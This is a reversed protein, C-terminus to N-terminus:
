IARNSIRHRSLIQSLSVKTNDTSWKLTAIARLGRLRGNGSDRLTSVRYNGERFSAIVMGTVSQNLGSDTETVIDLTALAASSYIDLVDFTKPVEFDANLSVSVRPTVTTGMLDNYNGTYMTYAKLDTDVGVLYLKNNTYSGGRLKTTFEFNGVWVELRDDWVYNKTPTTLWYHKKNNDWVGFVDQEPLDTSFLTNLNGIMGKEYIPDLQNGQLRFVSQNNNDPFFIGNDTIRVSRLHQCGNLRSLYVPVGTTGSRISLTTADSLEVNAADVPLYVVAKEQLVIMNDANLALKTIGGYTEELDFINGTRIIDFGSIDTGYVKTDSFYGRAPFISTPTENENFPILVKQDAEKSYGINYLYPFAIKLKYENDEELTGDANVDYPSVDLIEGIIESELYVSLVQSIQRYPVPMSVMGSGVAFGFSLSYKNKFIKEWRKALNDATLVAGAGKKEINVLGYHNDTIKFQHLSVYCDGGGVQQTVPANGSSQVGALESANFAWHAGTFVMDHLDETDGYRTDDLDNVINVIEVINVRDNAGVAVKEYTFDNTQESELFEYRADDVVSGDSTSFRNGGFSAKGYFAPDVRDGKLKLVGIKQNNPPLNFSVGTTTLANHDAVSLGSISTGEGYADIMKFDQLEGTLGQITPGSPDARDVTWSYYYDSQYISKFTGHVSTDLYNGESESTGSFPTSFTDYSLRTFAMDVVEYSDGTSFTYDLDNNGYNYVNPPFAFSLGFSSTYLTGTLAAYIEGKQTPSQDVNQKVYDRKVPFFMNKPVHTGVPNMPSASAVETEDLGAGDGQLQNYTNPYEGIVDLGEILSAPVLPTQFKVKKKRKARFIYFGRAWSPHNNVTIDLNLNVPQDSSNLVTYGAMKRSKFKMDTSGTIQNDVIASMDLVKPRSLNYNDDFYTIYFRYVEDRYYGRYTTTHLDNKNDVVQAVVSGTVIPDGNDYELNETKINAVFLRNNKTQITKASKISALDVVIDTITVEGIKINSDYDFFFTTWGANPTTGGTLDELKLLSANILPTASTNEIVSFQYHTWNTVEEDPIDIRLQITKAAVTGYGGISLDDTSRSINVPNFPITWRSYTKTDENYLRLSFQYSGCLLAGGANIAIPTITAITARRQVSIVEPTLFNAVYPSPIEMRIKRIEHFGDTFYIIDTGNEPYVVADIVPNSAEFEASYSEEYLEYTDNNTIDVAWIKFNGGSVATFITLAQVNVGNIKLQNAFVGLVKGSFGATITEVATTGRINELSLFKGDGSLILNDASLYTGEPISSKDVDANTGSSFKHISQKEM